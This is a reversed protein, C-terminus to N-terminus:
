PLKVPTTEVWMNKSEIERESESESERKKEGCKESTCTSLPCSRIFKPLQAPPGGLVATNM